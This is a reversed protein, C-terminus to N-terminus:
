SLHFTTFLPLYVQRKDDKKFTRKTYMMQEYAYDVQCNSAGVFRGNQTKEPNQIYEIAKKLHDSGGRVKSEKICMIKSIAM